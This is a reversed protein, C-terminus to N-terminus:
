QPLNAPPALRRSEIREMTEIDSHLYRVKVGHETLFLALDESSKKTTTTILVREGAQGLPRELAALESAIRAVHPEEAHQHEAHDRTRDEIRHALVPHIM